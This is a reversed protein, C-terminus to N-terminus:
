LVYFQDPHIYKVPAIWELVIPSYMIIPLGTIYM